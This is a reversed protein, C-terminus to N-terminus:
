HYIFGTLTELDHGRCGRREMLVFVDMRKVVDVGVWGDEKEEMLGDLIML